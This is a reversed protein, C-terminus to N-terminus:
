FYLKVGAKVSFGGCWKRTIDTNDDLTSVMSGKAIPLEYTPSMTLAVYRVPSYEIRATAFGSLTYTSINGYQNAVADAIYGDKHSCVGTIKYYSAGLAPTLCFGKGIPIGYGLSGSLVDKLSFEYEILSSIGPKGEPTILWYAYENPASHKLYGLELNFNWVYIGAFAWIGSLHGYQYGAGAYVNNNVRQLIADSKYTEDTKVTVATTYPLYGRMRFELNYTGSELNEILLPSKGRMVGDMYVTANDPISNAMINGKVPDLPPIQIVQEPKDAEITITTSYTAYGEQKVELVFTSAAVLGSWNGTGIFAGNLYIGSNETPNDFTVNVNPTMGEDKHDPRVTKLRLEYTRAKEIPVPFYYDRLIGLDPHAITIRQLGFPVYVWVEGAKQLTKVIGLMGGDFVFGKELTVVKILASVEGNQDYETTGFTNATLDNELMSFSEVYIEQSLIQISPLFALVIVVVFRLLKM